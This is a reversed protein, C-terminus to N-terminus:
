AFDRSLMLATSRTRIKLVGLISYRRGYAVLASSMSMKRMAADRIIAYDVTDSLGSIYDKKLKIFPRSGKFLFYPDDYGKLM